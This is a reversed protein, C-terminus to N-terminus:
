QRGVGVAVAVRVVVASVGGVGVPLSVGLTVEAVPGAVVDAPRHVRGSRSIGTFVHTFFRTFFGTFFRTFKGHINQLQIENSFRSIFFFRALKERDSNTM